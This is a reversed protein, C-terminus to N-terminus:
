VHYVKGEVKVTGNGGIKIIGMERREFFYAARLEDSTELALPHTLPMVGGSIIRDQHSYVLLIEDEEFVKEMLYHNRLEETTYYMSDDPHNAYRVQIKM